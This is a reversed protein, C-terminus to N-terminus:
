CKHRLSNYKLSMSLDFIYKAAALAADQIDKDGTAFSEPNAEIASSLSSLEKPLVIEDRESDSTVSM